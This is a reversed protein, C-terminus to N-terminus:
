SSIVIILDYAPNISQNAWKWGRIELSYLIQKAKPNTGNFYSHMGKDTPEHQVLNRQFMALSQQELQLMKNITNVNM